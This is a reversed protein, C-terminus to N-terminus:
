FTIEIKGKPPPFSFSLKVKISLMEDPLGDGECCGVKDAYRRIENSANKIERDMQDGAEKLYGLAEEPNKSRKIRDKIWNALWDEIRGRTQIDKAGLGKLSTVGSVEGAFATTALGMIPLSVVLSTTTKM